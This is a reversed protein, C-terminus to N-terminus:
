AAITKEFLVSGDGRHFVVHALARLPDLHLAVYNMEGTAFEFLADHQVSSLFPNPAQAGPGALVEYSTSGPGTKSIKAVSGLHFDGSLWLVGNIQGDDIHRLIEERQARYGQWRNIATIPTDFAAPFDGIPVSNLILKFVATSERLGRKLWAMQADSLYNEPWKKESKCDLVFIEATDGWRFSRWLREPTAPNRRIPLNEFLAERAADRKAKGGPFQPNWDNVVEHDDWTAILSTAQRLARSETFRHTRAWAEHFESLSQAGDNYSTDGLLLFADLDGRRAAHGLTAFSYDYHTCAVAGFVLPERSGPALAARFRGIPSRASHGKATVEFFAFRYRGSPTLGELDVRAFGWFTTTVRLRTIVRAYREAEMEWVVLELPAAGQYRTSVVASSSTVDGSAVGLEFGASLPASDPAEMPEAALGADVEPTARVGADLDTEGADRSGGDLLTQLVPREPEAGCGLLAGTVGLSGLQLFRRRSPDDTM